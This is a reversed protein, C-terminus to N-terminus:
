QDTRHMARLLGKIDFWTTPGRRNPAMASTVKNAAHEGCDEVAAGLSSADLARTTGVAVTAGVGAAVAAAWRPRGSKESRTACTPEATTLTCTTCFAGVACPGSSLSSSASSGNLSKKRRKPKGRGLIGCGLFLTGTRPMPEPKMM